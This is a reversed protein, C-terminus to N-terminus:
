GGVSVQLGYSELITKAEEIEEKKIPTLETLLYTRGLRTIKSAGMTHYPLIDVKNVKHLGTEIYQALRHINEKSSNIDPILPFRIIMQDIINSAKIANDLILENGVGTYERHVQTDMHKIDFLLVDTFRLFKEFQSWPAYGCTEVATNIEAKKCKKLLEALFSAQSLPEGGGVTVGGGSQKYFVRDRLVVKLVEDLSVLRGVLRRAETYCVDVCRGCQECKIRDVPWEYELSEGCPCVKLCEKCGICKEKYFMIEFSTSQSEPNSCWKCRLPCGKLFVLTRIGPGDHVSFRQIDFITGQLKEPSRKIAGM